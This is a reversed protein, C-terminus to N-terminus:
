RVDAPYHRVSLVLPSPPQTVVTGPRAAALAADFFGRTYRRVVDIFQARTAADQANLAQLLPLDGFDAHTTGASDLEVWYGGGTKHMAADRRADLRTSLADAQARTMGMQALEEDTPLTTPAARAIVMFPQDMGRAEADLFYPTRAALGDQNLCARLRTDLQCAHAAAQGGASHGFAGVRAADLHGAFPAEIRAGILQDLVFRIDDAWWRLRDRSPEQGPPLGEISSTTPKPWRAAAYPVRRGDPFVAIAADYTHTIAAVVYGHSALDVLQATYTERMEGGGHSFILIPARELARAFPAAQVAHTRVRGDKLADTAGRLYYRVNDLQALVASDLYPAAVGDVGEAPYWVDVMLERFRPEPALPETRATDTLHVTVRGVVFAGTPAPLAPAETDTAIQAAITAVPMAFLFVLTRTLTALM